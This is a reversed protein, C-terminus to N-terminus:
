KKSASIAGHLYIDRFVISDESDLFTKRLAARKSPDDLDDKALRKGTIKAIDKALEQFLMPNSFQEWTVFVVRYGMHQLANAREKDHLIETFRSHWELSDYEVDLRHAPWCVDAIAFAANGITRAADDFDVRYNMEPKRIGYGGYRRPLSLCLALETEKVSASGELLFPLAKRAAKIGKLNGAGELFSTLKAVTTLPTRKRTSEVRRYPTYTGCLECGLKVLLPFEIKSALRLFIFEPSPIAVDPSLEFYSGSPLPDRFVSYVIKTKCIRESKSSVIFHLPLWHPLMSLEAVLEHKNSPCGAISTVEVNIDLVSRPDCLSRMYALGAIGDLYM